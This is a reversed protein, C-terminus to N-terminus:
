NGTRSRESQNGTSHKKAKIEKNGLRYSISIQLTRNDYYYRATQLVGNVISENREASSRLLDNGRITLNLNKKLFLCQLSVSLSSAEKINYIGNVGPMSYWFNIGLLLTKDSKLNFNNYTSITANLGKQDEQEHALNFESVSFNVDLSNNSRWWKFRDFTFNQSIGFRHTNIFNENTFRIINTEADALPVQSFINEEFSYYFKSTLKKYTTSLEFNDIFSPQLFANGEISQFPNVFQINPNLEYFSPRQIRKSYNFSINSAKTIDYSLYITPFIKVYDNVTSFNLNKSISNTSTAEIRFGIQTKWKVKIAKKASIYLAKIDETYKFDNQSTPTTTVPNDVLGSNFFIIENLSISHTIKGGFSLGIWKLPYEVDIKASVNNVEQQNTNTGRFFQKSFPYQILSIGNYTRQDPNGYTFYDLNLAIKRGITDISFENNYNVSHITPNYIAKGNSLLSRITERTNYDYVPTYPNDQVNFNTSNYIYQTGMSWRPNIKYTLDIRGNARKFNTKFPSHTYWLGDPFHAYDDQEQYYVGNAYGVSSSISVTKKNLNLSGAGSGSSFTRQRFVLKMQANWSNKKAQKLNINILGSNGLADYKAPPTSIVEVNQIDESAISKLFSALDEGSLQVIKDNIMVQLTSKGIMSIENNQVRIGPTVRLVELADGESVKASNEVDYIVRDIKREILNRNAQITVEELQLLSEVLIEGFDIDQEKIEINKSVLEQGMYYVKFLYLGKELSLEFSGEANTITGIPYELSQGSFQINAYAISEQTSIDIIKGRITTQAGANSISLLIIVTILNIKYFEIGFIMTQQNIEALSHDIAQNNNAELQFLHCKIQFIKLKLEGPPASEVLASM